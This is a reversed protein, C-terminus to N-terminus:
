VVSKRDLAGPLDGMARCVMARQLKLPAEAPAARAAALVMELAAKTEGRQLAAQVGAILDSLRVEASAM